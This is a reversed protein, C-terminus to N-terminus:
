IRSDDNQKRRPFDGAFDGGHHKLWQNYDDSSIWKGACKSCVKAFLNAEIEKTELTENKCVPCKM